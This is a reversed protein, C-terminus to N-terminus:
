TENLRPSDAETKLIATWITDALQRKLLLCLPSRSSNHDFPNRFRSSVRLRRSGKYPSGKCLALGEFAKKKFPRNLCMLLWEVRLRDNGSSLFFDKLILTLNYLCCLNLQTCVKITVTINIITHYKSFYTLTKYMNIHVLFGCKSFYIFCVYLTHLAAKVVGDLAAKELRRDLNEVRTETRVTRAIGSKVM